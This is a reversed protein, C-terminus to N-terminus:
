PEGEVRNAARLRAVVGGLTREPEALETAGLRAILVPRPGGPSVESAGLPERAALQARLIEVTADSPDGGQSARREVRDRLTAEPLDIDLWALPAGARAAAAALLDR